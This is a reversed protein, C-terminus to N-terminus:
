FVVYMTAIIGATVFFLVMQAILLRKAYKQVSASPSLKITVGSFAVGLALFAVSFAVNTMFLLINKAAEAFSLANKSTQVLFLVFVALFALLLLCSIVFCAVSAIKKVKM